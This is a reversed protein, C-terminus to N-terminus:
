AQIPYKCIKEKQCIQGKPQLDKPKEMKVQNAKGENEQIHGNIEKDLKETKWKWNKVERAKVAKEERERKAEKLKSSGM